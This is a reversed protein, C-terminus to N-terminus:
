YSYLYIEVEMYHILVLSFVMENSDFFNKMETFYLYFHGLGMSYQISETTRLERNKKKKNM